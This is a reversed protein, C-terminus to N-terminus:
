WIFNVEGGWFFLFKVLYFNNHVYAIMLQTKFILTWVNNFYVTDVGQSTFKYLVRPTLIYSTIQFFFPISSDELPNPGLKVTPFKSKALFYFFLLSQLSFNAM